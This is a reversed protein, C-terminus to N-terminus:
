SRLSINKVGLPPVVLLAEILEELPVGTVTAEFPEYVVPAGTVGCQLKDDGLEPSNSRVNVPPGGFLRIM